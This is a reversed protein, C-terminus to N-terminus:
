EGDASGVKGHRIRGYGPHAAHALAIAAPSVRGRTVGRAGERSSPPRVRTDDRSCGGSFPEHAGERGKEPKSLDIGPVLPVTSTSGPPNGWGGFRRPPGGRISLDCPLVTRHEYAREEGGFSPGPKRPMLAVELGEESFRRRERSVTAASTEPADAIREDARAPGGESADDAKLLIRAYSLKRAHHARGRRVLAELHEREEDTPRVVYRKQAHRVEWTAHASGSPVVLLKM